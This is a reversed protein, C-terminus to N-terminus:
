AQRSPRYKSTRKRWIIELPTGQFGFHHRLQNIIYREYGAKTKDPNNTMFVFTPPATVVQSGYYIRTSRGSKIPPAHKAVIQELILNLDATQIRRTYQQYAKQVLSFIKAVNQGTKASVFVLPAYDVFPLKEAVNRQISKKSVQNEKMLDWKNIVIVLAKRRDCVYGAIKATQTTINQTGDIVLLVVNSNEIARLSSVISYKEIKQSVKTKRRIGATDILLYDCGAHTFQSDVPDRTTGAVADVLMRDESLISNILLSKGVNPQGALSVKIQSPTTEKESLPVLPLAAHIAELLTEIGLNHEVSIPFIIEHGSQYFEYLAQKQRSSDLKNVAFYLPKQSQVLYRYIEEDDPTWGERGDMLFIVADAEEVAMQSQQRMQQLIGGTEPEFGGTDILLFEYLGYHAVAYHRDRTVGPTNDVLAARRKVLRNFLTSKGVNPRGVIALIPLPHPM